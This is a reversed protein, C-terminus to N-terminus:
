FLLFFTVLLPASGHRFVELGSRRLIFPFFALHAFEGPAKMGWGIPLKM